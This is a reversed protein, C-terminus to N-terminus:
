AMAVFSGTILKHFNNHQLHFTRSPSSIVFICRFLAHTNTKGNWEESVYRGNSNIITTTGDQTYCDHLFGGITVDQRTFYEYRGPTDTCVAIRDIYWYEENSTINLIVCQPLREPQVLTPTPTPSSANAAAAGSTGQEQQLVCGISRCDDHGRGCNNICNDDDNGCSALCVLQDDYCSQYCGELDFSSPREQQDQEANPKDEKQPMCGISRCDDHGKGCNDICSTDDKGCSDLCKMQDDFCTQYCEDIAPPSTEQQQQQEQQYLCGNTQCEELGKSCKDLCYDDNDECSDICRLQDGFCKQFCEEVDFSTASQGQLHRRRHSPSSSKTAVPAYFDIRVRQKWTTATINIPTGTTIEPYQEDHQSLCRDQGDGDVDEEELIYRDKWRVTLAENTTPSVFTYQLSDASVYYHYTSLCVNGTTNKTITSPCKVAARDNRKVIPQRVCCEAESLPELRINMRVAKTATDTYFKLVSGSDVCYQLGVLSPSVEFSDQVTQTTTIGTTYYTISSSDSDAMSTMAPLVNYRHDFHVVTGDDDHGLSDDPTTTVVIRYQQPHSQQPPQPPVMLCTNNSGEGDLTQVEIRGVELMQISCEVDATASTATSSAAVLLLFLQRVRMMTM